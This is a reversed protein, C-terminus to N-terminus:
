NSFARRNSAPLFTRSLTYLSSESSSKDSRYCADAAATGRWKNEDGGAGLASRPTGSEHAAWMMWWGGSDWWEAWSVEVIRVRVWGRVLPGEQAAEQLRDDGRATAFIADWVGATTMSLYAGLQRRAGMSRNLVSAPKYRCPSSSARYLERSCDRALICISM